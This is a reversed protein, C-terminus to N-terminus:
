GLDGEVCNMAIGTPTVLFPDNPKITPIGVQKEFVTEIGTLCCTGGCLYLVETETTDINRQVISAMKEIVPKVIPFIMKHNDSNMKLEEAEEFTIGMNGSLVLSLHTGGTAEDAVRVVKGDKFIALGTTGGGIDVIAGNTINYIANAATPEDLVNIVEFGASEAVYIHTKTSSETGAPMAIACQTLEVGLRDELKAKLEKVIRSAGVFDVVVGDRLVRAAKKECAVPNDDEDLVVIVIYATGLDVGVKLPGDVSGLVESESQVVREMYANVAALDM